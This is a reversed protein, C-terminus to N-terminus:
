NSTRRVMLTQVQSIGEITELKKEFEDLLGTKDEPFKIQVLLAKLGYAVLEEGYGHISTQEPLSSEIRKKMDDFNEVIDAPFIKYMVVVFGM